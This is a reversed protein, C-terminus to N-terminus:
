KGARIEFVRFNLIRRDNPSPKGGGDVHLRFENPKGAEVPVFLQVTGRREVRVAAAQRGSEDLARLLFAKFGVGPGPEVVLLLAVDGAQTGTVRIRADNDVWRFTEGRFTEVVGWGSGLEVGTGRIIDSGLAKRSAPEFGLFQLRAGVMRGDGGPLQQVPSFTITIRRNEPGNPVPASFQFEGPGVTKTGVGINNVFLQVTTQFNMNGLNPVMGRITLMQDGSPQQLTASGTEEVWADQYIGSAERKPDTLDSPFRSLRSADSPVGCSTLSLLLATLLIGSIGALNKM